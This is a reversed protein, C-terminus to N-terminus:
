KRAKISRHPLIWILRNCMKAKSMRSIVDSMAKIAEQQTEPKVLPDWVVDDVRSDEISLERVGKHPLLRLRRENFIAGASLLMNGWKDYLPKALKMGPKAYELSIRRL